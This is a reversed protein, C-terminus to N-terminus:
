DGNECFAWDRADAHSYFIRTRRFRQRANMSKRWQLDTGDPPRVVLAARGKGPARDLIGALTLIRPMDGALGKHDPSRDDVLLPIDSRWNDSMVAIQLVELLLDEGCEGWTRVHVM